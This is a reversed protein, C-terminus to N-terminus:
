HDKTDYLCSQTKEEWNRALIVGIIGKFRCKNNIKSTYAITVITVISVFYSRRKHLATTVFGIIMQDLVHHPVHDLVDGVLMM